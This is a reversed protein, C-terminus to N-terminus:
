SKIKIRKLNLKKFKIFRQFIPLDHWCEVGNPCESDYHKRNHTIWYHGPWFIGENGFEDSSDFPDANIFTTETGRKGLRDLVAWAFEECDGKNIDKAKTGTDRFWQKRIDLIIETINM